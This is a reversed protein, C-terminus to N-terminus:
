YEGKYVIINKDSDFKRSTGKILTGNKFVLYEGNGSALPSDIEFSHIDALNFEKGSTQLKGNVWEVSGKYIQSNKLEIFDARSVFTFILICLVCKM